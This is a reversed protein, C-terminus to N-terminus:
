GGEAGGRHIQHPDRIEFWEKGIGIYVRKCRQCCVDHIKCTCSVVCGHCGCPLLIYPNVMNKCCAMKCKRQVKGIGRALVNHAKGGKEVRGFQEVTM